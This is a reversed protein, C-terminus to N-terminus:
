LFRNVIESRTKGVESLGAARTMPKEDICEARTLDFGMDGERM